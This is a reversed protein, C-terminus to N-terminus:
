LFINGYLGGIALQLRNDLKTFALLSLKNDNLAKQTITICESYIAKKLEKNDNVSYITQLIFLYLPKGTLLPSTGMTAPSTLRKEIEEKIENKIEDETFVEHVYFRNETQNIVSRVRCFILKEDNGYKIKGAFYHNNISDGNFDRIYGLYSGKELVSKIAPLTQLKDYKDSYNGHYMDNKVSRNNIIISGIVTRADGQPNNRLWEIASKDYLGNGIYKVSDKEIRRM